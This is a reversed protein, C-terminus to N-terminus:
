YTLLRNIRQIIETALAASQDKKSASSISDIRGNAPKWDGSGSTTLLIVKEPQKLRELYANVDAQMKGSECTNILIIANWDAENVGGLATVDIVRIYVSQQKLREIIEAVLQKKFASGQTAILVKSSLDARNVEFSEVVGQSFFIRYAVAASLAIGILCGVALLSIKLIKM